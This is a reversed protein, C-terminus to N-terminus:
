EGLQSTYCDEKSKDDRWCDFFAHKLKGKGAIEQYKVRLVRGIVDSNKGSFKYNDTLEEKEEDDFGSVKGMEKINGEADYMGIRLSTVQGGYTESKSVVFGTVFADAERIGKIKWWGDYHREKLVYGELGEKEALYLYFETIDALTDIDPVGVRDLLKAIAISPLTDRLIRRGVKYTMASYHTGSVIPIAFAKYVLQDPCDKIATPVESDPHDPWLLEGDVATERPLPPFAPLEDFAVSLRGDQILDPFSGDVGLRRSHLHYDGNKDRSYIYRHGQFKEEKYLILPFSDKKVMIKSKDTIKLDGERDRSLYKRAILQKPHCILKRGEGSKKTLVSMPWQACGTM